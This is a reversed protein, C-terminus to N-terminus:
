KYDLIFKVIDYKYSSSSGYFVQIHKYNLYEISAKCNKKFWDSLCYIYIIKFSPFTRSYQWVKFDPTQIKECVSGTTQQFKTEIIFINKRDEDIFCEDPQKCGSAKPIKKDIYKDMYKFLNAKKTEIFKRNIDQHFTITNCHMNTYLIKYETNLNTLSEYSLGNKNTKSGGAGTGKNRLKKLKLPINNSSSNNINTDKIDKDNIQLNNFTNILNDEM